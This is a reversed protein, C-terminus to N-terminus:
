IIKKLFSLDEKDDLDLSKTKKMLYVGIKDFLRNKFKFFKKSNFIYIAGNEFILNKMDQTNQRFKYNYSISTLRKKYQWIFKKEKYASFLSDYKKKEFIKISMDIDTHTRLPSTPQLLVINKIQNYFKDGFLNILTYLLTKEMSVKSHSIKQPRLFFGVNKKKSLKIIKRDDTTIIIKKIKKAKKAAEITYSILEKNKIKITNKNKIRQSNKRAPIIAVYNLM